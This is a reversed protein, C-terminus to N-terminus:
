KISFSYLKHANEMIQECMEREDVNKIVAMKKVVEQVYSPENRQGRFPIPTVYPADTESLIRDMPISAVLKEYMKAFTIVGTFSIYFDLDMFAQAIEITGAFFHVQGKLSPNEKKYEGLISLVDEYADYSNESPRVHLMLPLGTELALEIQERFAKEQVRRTGRDNRYYDLGCEGIGIVKKSSSILKRYFDKDFIEGHSSFTEGEEGLEDHDHYSASTHIPHLGVIAYFHEYQEALEVAKKSTDRQTGVNFVTIENKKTREVVEGLDNEYIHFNLHTHTDIYKM